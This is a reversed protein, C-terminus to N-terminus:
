ALRSIKTLAKARVHKNAHKAFREGELEKADSIKAIAREAMARTFDDKKPESTAM